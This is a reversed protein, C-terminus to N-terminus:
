RFELVLEDTLYIEDGVDLMVEVGSMTDDELGYGFSFHYNEEFTQADSISCIGYGSTLYLKYIGPQIDQGVTFNFKDSDKLTMGSLSVGNGSPEVTVPPTQPSAPETPAVSPTDGLGTMIGNDDKADQAEKKVKSPIEYDDEDLENYKSLVYQMDVAMDIDTNEAEASLTVNKLNIKRLNCKKDFYYLVEGEDGMKFDSITNDLNSTFSEGFFDSDFDKINAKLLYGDDTKEFAFKSWDVDDLEDPDLLSTLTKDTEEKVWADTGKTKTYVCSDEADIYIESDQEESMGLLSVKMTMDGHASKQGVDFEFEATIPVNLRTTGAAVSATDNLAMSMEMDMEGMMHFNKTNEMQKEYNKMVDAASRPGFLSFSCATMLMMMSLALMMIVSFKVYKKM